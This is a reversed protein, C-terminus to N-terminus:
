TLKKRFGAGVLPKMTILHLAIHWNYACTM